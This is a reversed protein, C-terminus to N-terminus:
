LCCGWSCARWYGFGHGLCRGIKHRRWAVSLEVDAFRFRLLKRQAGDSSMCLALARRDGCGIAPNVVAQVGSVRM